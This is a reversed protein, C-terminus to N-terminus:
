FRWIKAILLILIIAYLQKSWLPMDDRKANGKLKHIEQYPSGESATAM